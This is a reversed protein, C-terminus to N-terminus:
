PFDDPLMFLIKIDILAPPPEQCYVNERERFSHLRVVTIGGVSQMILVFPSFPTFSKKACIVCLCLWVGHHQRVAPMLETNKNVFATVYQIKYM